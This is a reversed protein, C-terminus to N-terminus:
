DESWSTLVGNELNLYYIGGYVWQERVGWSGVRRRVDQPLGWSAKIEDGGMGIRIKGRLVCDKVDEPWHPNEKIAATRRELNNCSDKIIKAMKKHIWKEVPQEELRVFPHYVVEQCRVTSVGGTVWLRAEREEGVYEVIMGPVRVSAHHGSENGKEDIMTIVAETGVLPRARPVDHGSGQAHWFTWGTGRENNDFVKAVEQSESILWDGQRRSFALVDWAAAQGIVKHEEGPGSRISGKETMVICAAFLNSWFLVTFSVVGVFLLRRM